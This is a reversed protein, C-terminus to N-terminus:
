VSQPKMEVFFTPNSLVRRVPCKGAIELLRARQEDDLEPAHIVVQERIEHVFQADGKYNPYDTANFREMELNVEIKDVPWKKRLAYLEATIVMCSGLAGLLMETPTAASDTGGGDAPEDVYWTHHRAKAVTRLGKDTSVQVAAM